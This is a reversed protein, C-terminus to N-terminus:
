SQDKCFFRFKNILHFNEFFKSSFSDFSKNQNIKTSSNLLQENEVKRLSTEDFNINYERIFDHKQNNISRFDTINIWPYLASKPIKEINEPKDTNFFKKKEVNYFNKDIFIDCENKYFKSPIRIRSKDIGSAEPLDILKKNINQLQHDRNSDNLSIKSSYKPTEFEIPAVIETSFSETNFNAIIVGTQEDLDSFEEM